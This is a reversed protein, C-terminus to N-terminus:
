RIETLLSDKENLKRKLDDVIETSMKPDILDSSSQSGKLPSEYVSGSAASTPRVPHEVVRSTSRKGGEYGEVDSLSGNSRTSSDKSKASNHKSSFAKSFSHRLWGSRKHGNEGKKKGTSSEDGSQCSDVSDTSVQRRLKNDILGVDAGAQRLRDITRRLENLESDKREASNTLQQLRATMNALSQEFASVVHSNTM